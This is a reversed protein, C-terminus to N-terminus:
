RTRLTIGLSYVRYRTRTKHIDGDGGVQYRVRGGYHSEVGLNASLTSPSAGGMKWLDVVAGVGVSAVPILRALDVGRLEREVDGNIDCCWEYVTETAFYGAGVSGGLYPRVHRLPLAYRATVGLTRLMNKVEITDGYAKADRTISRYALGTDFARKPGWSLAGRLGYGFPLANGARFDGRAEMVSLEIGLTADPLPLGQPASLQAATISPATLLVALGVCAFGRCM